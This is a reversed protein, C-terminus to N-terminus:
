RAALWPHNHVAEPKKIPSPLCRASWERESRSISLTRIGGPGSQERDFRGRPAAQLARWETLTSIMPEFGMPPASPVLLFRCPVCVPLAAVSLGQDSAVWSSVVRRGTGVASQTSGFIWQEWAHCADSRSEYPRSARSSVPAQSIAPPSTSPRTEYARLGRNSDRARLHFTLRLAAIHCPVRVPMVIVVVRRATGPAQHRHTRSGRRSNFSASRLGDRPGIAVVGKKCFPFPPEVGEPVVRSL